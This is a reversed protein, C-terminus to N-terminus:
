SLHADNRNHGGSSIVLRLQPLSAAVRAKFAKLGLKAVQVPPHPRLALLSTEFTHKEAPDMDRPAEAPEIYKAFNPSEVKEPDRVEIDRFYEGRPACASGRAVTVSHRVLKDYSPERHLGEPSLSCVYRKESTHRPKERLM